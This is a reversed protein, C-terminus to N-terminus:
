HSAATAVQGCGLRQRRVQAALSIVIERRGARRPKGVIDKMSESETPIGVDELKQHGKEALELIAIALVGRPGM